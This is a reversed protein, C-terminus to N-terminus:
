NVTRLVYPVERQPSPAEMLTLAGDNRIPKCHVDFLHATLYRLSPQREAPPQEIMDGVSREHWIPTTAAQLLRDRTQAFRRHATQAREAEYTLTLTCTPILEALRALLRAQVLNFQDYGDVILLDVDLRDSPLDEAHALALWGEGDGDVLDRGRLFAQYSSYIASLDADKATTCIASFAEPTIEAQKLEKMFDAVLAVFGPMKAIGGFHQLDDGVDALVAMLIRFRAADKVQRQAQEARELLRAYLDYFDFFEVGFHGADGIELLLRERFSSIQLDTPLLGWIKGFLKQALLQKVQVIAAHTKGQGAAGTLLIAPM